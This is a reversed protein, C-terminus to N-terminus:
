EDWRENRIIRMFQRAHYEASCVNLITFDPAASADDIKRSLRHELQGDSSRSRMALREALVQPPATISVVVVQEYANRMAGIVTRSVNAIVTRGARIDDDIARPLGYCHGHAEWHMAYDGKALAQRFDEVGIQENNEFASAERTVVRQAFVINPDEACSSKALNLLTDKGAGSPGVVLILRGPGIAPSAQASIPLAETM